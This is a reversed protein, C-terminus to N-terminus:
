GGFLPRDQVITRSRWKDLSPTSAGPPASRGDLLMAHFTCPLRTYAPNSLLRGSPRFCHSACAFTALTPGLHRQTARRAATSTRLELRASLAGALARQTPNTPTLLEYM